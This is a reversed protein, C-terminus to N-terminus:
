APSKENLILKSYPIITQYGKSSFYDTPNGHSTALIFDGGWAGLSKIEGEYDNFLTKKVPEIEIINAIISEHKTILEEFDSLRRCGLIDDCIADINKIASRVESKRNQYDAIAERSNQKQNLYVFFLQDKFSPNFDTITISPHLPDELQYILPQNSSACAIDYGSGGFTKRLLRYPNINAWQAINNVLTSSTGLGWSRNFDLYTTVKYGITKDALFNPNYHMAAVLLELLRRKTDDVENVLSGRLRDTPFIAELWVSNDVDYSKWHIIPEHQKEITISQGCQTPLAIAKAGDLVLYEGTLLLKGNSYFKQLDM